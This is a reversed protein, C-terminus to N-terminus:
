NNLKCFFRTPHNVPLNNFNAYANIGNQTGLMWYSVNFYDTIYEERGSTTTYMKGVYESAGWAVSSPPPSVGVMAGNSDSDSSSSASILNQGDWPAQYLIYPSNLKEIQMQFLTVFYPNANTFSDQSPAHVEVSVSPYAIYTSGGLYVGESTSPVSNFKLIFESSYYLETTSSIPPLPFCTGYGNGAFYAIWSGDCYMVIIGFSEKPNYTISQSCPPTLIEEPKSCHFYPSSYVIKTYNVAIDTDLVFNGSIDVLAYQLLVGDFNYTNGNLYLMGTAQIPINVMEAISYFGSNNLNFYSFNAFSVSYYNYGALNSNYASVAWDYNSTSASSILSATPVLMILLFLLSIVNKSKRNLDM